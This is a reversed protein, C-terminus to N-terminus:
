QATSKSGGPSGVIPTGAPLPRAAVRLQLAHAVERLPGFGKFSDPYIWMTVVTDPISTEIIQRYRSGPRVAEEFSEDVLSADPEITWRSVNVRTRGDGSQLAELTSPGEKEVTYTMTYGHVPGVTGEFQNFRMIAVRRALVQTKLRDLLEELPIQSIRGNSLRFHLEGRDVPKTVPSLRHQLRDKPANTQEASNLIEQLQQTEVIATRLQQDLDKETSAATALAKGLVLANQGKESIAKQLVAIRAAIANKDSELDSVQLKLRNAKEQDSSLQQRALEQDEMVQQLRLEADASEADLLALQAAIQEDSDRLTLLTQQQRAILAAQDPGEAKPTVATVTASPPGGTPQREMKVSVIVILIILIGVINCVVDLFSDSGFELEPRQARRNM